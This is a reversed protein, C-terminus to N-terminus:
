EKKVFGSLFAKQKKIADELDKNEKKKVEKKPKTNSPEKSNRRRMRTNSTGTDITGSVGIATDSTTKSDVTDVDTGRLRDDDTSKTKKRRNNTSVQRPQDSGSQEYTTRKVTISNYIEPKISAKRKLEETDTNQTDDYLVCGTAYKTKYGDIQIGCPYKIGDMEVTYQVGWTNRKSRVVYGYCREGFWTFCVADGTKFLVKNFKKFINEPINKTSM